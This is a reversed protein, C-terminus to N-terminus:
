KWPRGYIWENQGRMPGHKIVTDAHKWKGNIYVKAWAHASGQNLAKYKYKAPLGAARFMAVALHAHDLCNARKYRIVGSAGYRTGGYM